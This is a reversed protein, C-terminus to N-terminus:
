VYKTNFTKCIPGCSSGWRNVPSDYRWNKRFSSGIKNSSTGRSMLCSIHSCCSPAGACKLRTTRSYRSSVKEFRQIPRPPQIRQGALDGSKFGSSKKRQPWKLAIIYPRVRGAFRFSRISRMLIAAAVTVSSSKSLHQSFRMTRAWLHM